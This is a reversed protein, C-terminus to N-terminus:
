DLLAALFEVPSMIPGKLRDPGWSDGPGVSGFPWHARKWRRSYCGVHAGKDTEM